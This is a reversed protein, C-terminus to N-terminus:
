EYKISWLLFNKCFMIGFNHSKKSHFQVGIINKNCIVVTIHKYVSTNALINFSNLVKYINLHIFYASHNFNNSTTRPFLFHNNIPKILSWGIRPARVNWSSPIKTVSNLIWISSCLTKEELSFSSLLQMGVCIGLFHTLKIKVSYNLTDIMNPISSLHKFCDSYNGVSPLIIKNNANVDDPKNTVVVDCNISGMRTAMELASVVSRLNGSGYDIIVVKM